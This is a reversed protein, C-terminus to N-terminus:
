AYDQHTVTGDPWVIFTEVKHYKAYRITAWTGSGRHKETYEFPGAILLDAKDVMIRNRTLPPRIDHLVDYSNYARWKSINCPHGNMVVELNNNLRFVDLATHFQTDAGLCDGDHTEHPGDEVLFGEAIENAKAWQSM